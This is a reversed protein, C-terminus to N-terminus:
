NAPDCNLHSFNMRHTHTHAALRNAHLWHKFHFGMGGILGAHTIHVLLTMQFKSSTTWNSKLPSKHLKMFM